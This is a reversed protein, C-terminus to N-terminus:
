ANAAGVGRVWRCIKAWYKEHDLFYKWGNEIWRKLSNQLQLKIYDNLIFDSFCLGWCFFIMYENCNCQSMNRGIWKVMMLFDYLVYAPIINKPLAERQLYQWYLPTHRFCSASLRDHDYRCSATGYKWVASLSFAYYIALLSKYEYINEAACLTYLKFGINKSLQLICRISKCVCISFYPPLSSM